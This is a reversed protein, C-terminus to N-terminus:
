YLYLMNDEYLHSTNVYHPFNWLSEGRSSFSWTILLQEFLSESIQLCLTRSQKDLGLHEDRFVSFVSAHSCCLDVWCCNLFTYRFLLLQLLLSCPLPFCFSTLLVSIYSLWINKFLFLSFFSVKSLSKTTYNYLLPLMIINADYCYFLLNLLIYNQLM